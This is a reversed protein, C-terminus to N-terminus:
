LVGKTSMGAAGGGRNPKYAEKVACGVAKFLAEAAHHGNESYRVSLHLNMKGGITMGWFFERLLSLDFNGVRKQAWNVNWCLYSRGGADVVAESLADDMPILASGYRKIGDSKLRVQEFASGIVLGTDEVLHHPDVDIDGSADLNLSFEGHFAMATLMHNFFGLRTEINSNGPKGIDLIAKVDTEKSVRHLEIM